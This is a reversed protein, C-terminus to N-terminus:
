PEFSPENISKLAAEPPKGKALAADLEDVHIYQGTAGATQSQELLVLLGDRVSEASRLGSKGAPKPFSRTNVM